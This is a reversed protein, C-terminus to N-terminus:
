KVEGLAKVKVSDVLWDGKKTQIVTYTTDYSVSYPGALTKGVTEISVYRYTWQERAPVLTHTGEVASKGFTISQPTQDIVRSQELNLQNYSDVRVEQFASMTPTAVESQAIRYAYSTWDLYSRVAAEPTSLVWPQPKNALAQKSIIVQQTPGAMNHGVPASAEVSAPSTKAGGTSCGALAFLAVCAACFLVTKASGAV